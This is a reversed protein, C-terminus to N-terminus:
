IREIVKEQLKKNLNLRKLCYEKKFLWKLKQYNAFINKKYKDIKSYVLKYEEEFNENLKNNNISNNIHSFYIKTLRSALTSFIAYPSSAIFIIIGKEPLEETIKLLSNNAEKTLNEASEILVVKYPSIIPKQFLFRRIEKTEDIGISENKNKIIKSDVLNNLNREKKGEFFIILKSAFEFSKERCGFFLYSGSIKNKKILNKFISFKDM